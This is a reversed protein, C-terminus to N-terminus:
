FPHEWSPAPEHSPELYYLRHPVRICDCRVAVVREGECLSLTALLPTRCHWPERQWREHVIYEEVVGESTLVEYGRLKDCRRGNCRPCRAYVTVMRPVDIVRGGAAEEPQAPPHGWDGGGAAPACRTCARNDAEVGGGGATVAPRLEPM